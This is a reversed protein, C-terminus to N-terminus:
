NRTCLCSGPRQLQSAVPRGAQCPLGAKGPQWSATPIYLRGGLICIYDCLWVLGMPLTFSNVIDRERKGLVPADVTVVLARYGAQEAAVVMRQTYERAKFMYVQFMLNTGVGAVEELPMNSLTSLVMGVNATAAARATALEGEKHAMAQFAMPAVLIPCSLDMDFLTLNTHVASVDVLVRPILRFAKFADRNDRATQETEAAGAYYDFASTTLLPRALEELQELNTFAGATALHVVNRAAWSM